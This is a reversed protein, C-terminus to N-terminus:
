HGKKHKHHHKKVCKAKGKVVVKRKGKGCKLAKKVVPAAAPLIVPSSGIPGAEAAPPTGGAESATAGAPIWSPYRADANAVLPTPAGGGAAVTSIFGGNGAEYAIRTGDPSWSLTGSLIPNGANLLPSQEAGDANMVHLGNNAATPSESTSFAIRASDPSWAPSTNQIPFNTKTLQKPESGNANMVWIDNNYEPDCCPKPGSSIYVIKTGDPSFEPSTEQVGPSNTLDVAGTGNANIVWIDQEGPTLGQRMFTIESGDPSYAPEFNIVPDKTNTVDTQESGDSNMSFINWGSDRFTQFVVHAGDASASPRQESFTEGPTLDVAGGGDPNISWVDSGQEYFVKGNLGAFSGSSLSPLVLILGLAAIVSGLGFLRRRSSRRSTPALV